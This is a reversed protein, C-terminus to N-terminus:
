AVEVLPTGFGVLSQPVTLIKALIGDTSAIVPAYISGIQILAVLDGTRVLGGVPVIPTAHQPHQILFIGPVEAAIIVGDRRDEGDDITVSVPNGWAVDSQLVMRLRCDDSEIEFVGIRADELWQVVERLEEVKM